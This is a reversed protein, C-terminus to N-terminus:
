DDFLLDVGTPPVFSFHGEAFDRDFHTSNFRVESVQGSRDVVRFGAPLDAYDIYVQISAILSEDDLPTLLYRDDIREIAFWDDLDVEATFLSIPNQTPDDRWSRVIVQELDPDYLFISQGDCVMLQRPDSTEWRMLRPKQLSMHGQQRDLLEGTETYLEQIFDADLSIFAALMAQFEDSAARVGASWILLLIPLFRRM